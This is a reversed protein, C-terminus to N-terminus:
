AHLEGVPRGNQDDPPATLTLVRGSFQSCTHPSSVRRAECALLDVHTSHKAQAQATERELIVVGDVVDAPASALANPPPRRARTSTSADAQM